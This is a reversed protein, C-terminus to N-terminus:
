HHRKSQTFANVRHARMSVQQTYDGTASYSTHMLTDRCSVQIHRTSALEHRPDASGIVAHGTNKKNVSHTECQTNSVTPPAICLGKSSVVPSTSQKALYRRSGQFGKAAASRTLLWLFKFCKSFVFVSGPPKSYTTGMGGKREWGRKERERRDRGRNWTPAVENHNELFCWWSGLERSV